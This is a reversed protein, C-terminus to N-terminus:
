GVDIYHDLLLGIDIGSHTFDYAPPLPRDAYHPHADFFPLGNRDRYRRDLFYATKYANVPNAHALILLQAAPHMTMVEDPTILARAQVLDNRSLYHPDGFLNAREEVTELSLSEVTGVGCLKSVYEATMLDRTGFCQIVGSNAIFTQWRSQYLDSLQNFDQVIAHLLMGYGAMLGYANEIVDLRGLAGMEELLFYVPPEPKRKFRSAATIAVTLLLRLWRSYTSLRGAPLVLYIDTTGDEIDRFDFDSHSLSKQIRPSELFHTNQQATSIVSALERDAKNLIRGAAARVHHNPHQAMGTKVLQRKGNGDEEFTGGVFNRFAKPGLNLIERVRGLHRNGIEAPTAAVYLILGMILATAEDPWFPESRAHIIVLSAAILLADEIFDDDDPDLWDLVNFRAPSMDLYPCAINWPDAIYVKHGLVDRRYRATMIALEGKPDVIVAPGEHSLLAPVSTSVSKGSRTPAVTLMHRASSYSVATPREGAKDPLNYGLHFHGQEGYGRAALHGRTAWRASGHIDPDRSYIMRHDNDHLM